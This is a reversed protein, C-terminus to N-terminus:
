HRSGYGNGPQAMTVTIPNRQVPDIKSYLLPFDIAHEARVTAPFVVSKRM